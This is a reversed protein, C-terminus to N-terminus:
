FRGRVFERSQNRMRTMETATREEILTSRLSPWAADFATDTGGFAARAERKLAEDAAQQRETEAAVRANERERAAAEEDKRRADMQESLAVVGPLKAILSRKYDLILRNRTMEPLGPQEEALNITYATVAKNVQDLTTM